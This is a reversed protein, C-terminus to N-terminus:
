PRYSLQYLAANADCLDRTRIGDPGGFPNVNFHGNIVINDIPRYCTSCNVLAYRPALVKFVLYFIIM